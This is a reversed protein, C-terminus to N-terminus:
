QGPLEIWAAAPLAISFQVTEDVRGFYGGWGIKIAEVRTPDLRGDEDRSWGALQFQSLSLSNQTWGASALSRGTTALFDGGDKEKLIVLLQNPTGQGAPVCSEIVLCAADSLDLPPTFHFLVFQHTDVDGKTLTAAATWVPREATTHADDPMVRGQVFEGQGVTPAVWPLPDKVLRPLATQRFSQRAPLLPRPFLFFSAGYPELRIDVNGSDRIQSIEGTAPNWAQGPGRASFALTGKWPTASDNIVFYVEQSHHRRHTIRIPSAAEAGMVDPKLVAEIMLPLLAESGAPLFIGAGGHVASAHFHPDPSAEASISEDAPKGFLERALNKVRISPFESESNAPLSGLAIVLGGSEVFRALKEWAALPLTDVQPLVVVRWRLDGHVLWGEEVQADLLARSDVFTFDRQAKFLSEAATKYASEIPGAASAEHTLNRSPTFQTWISEVPYLVAVDAVQHGGRLLLSCRGVYANLQRIEDDSLGAYSYYSTINNVGGVFLRNCTGRIEAETVQRKPRADGEPRYRQAHDSTESMVLDGEELEAASGLLRAVHWPVSPPVSTLCDMSPADLRRICRFFDGYLPVHGVINEELLLHGGSPIRHERGWTQLQGFYNDAVLEGITLWYDYRWKACEPGTDAVLAPLVQENLPYGRREKFIAPLKPAWPLPAYPMPKLFLSMLSPEDTFLGMFFPSLDQGLHGAYAQHTLALFHATPEAQLLNIYPIKAHLNGDAHTGEFLRHETFALIQWSGTPAEWELRGNQVQETLDVKGPLVLRNERVPFAALLVPKGPPLDLAVAGGSTQQRAVLLGRAEWEPHDRLTRGGANGSPYGKEDYLWMAMGAQKATKVARTFTQWKAESDLYQHFSLNCVVGGFGQEQLRTILRDQAQAEDPWGHIIKQIRMEAPPQAFLSPLDPASPDQAHAGTGMIVVMGALGRLVMARSCVGKMRGNFALSPATAITIMNFGPIHIATDAIPGCVVGM